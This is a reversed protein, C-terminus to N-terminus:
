LQCDCAVITEENLGFGFSVASFTTPYAEVKGFLFNM